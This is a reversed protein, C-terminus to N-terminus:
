SGTEGRGSRQRSRRGAFRAHGPNRVQRGRRGACASIRPLRQDWHGRKLGAGWKRVHVFASGHRLVGASLRFRMPMSTLAPLVPIGASGLRQVAWALPYASLLVFAQVARGLLRGPGTRRGPGPRHRGRRGRRHRLPRDRDAAPWCAAPPPPPRPCPRIGGDRLAEPPRRPALPCRNLRAGCHAGFPHIGRAPQGPVGSRVRGSGKRAQRAPSRRSNAAIWVRAPRGLYYHVITM